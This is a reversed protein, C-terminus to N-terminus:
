AQNKPNEPSAKWKKGLEKQQEKFELHKYESRHEKFFAQMKVMAAKAKNNKGPRGPGKKVGASAKPTKPAATKTTATAAM